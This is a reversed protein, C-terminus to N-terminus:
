SCTRRPPLDPVAQFQHFQFYAFQQLQVLKRPVINRHDSARRQSRQVPFLLPFLLNIRQHFRHVLVNRLRHPVHVLRERHRDLINERNRSAPRHHRPAHLAALHLHAFFHLDHAETRRHLTHHGPDLHEPLQQIFAHRSVVDPQQQAPRFLFFHLAPLHQGLRGRDRRVRLELRFRVHQRLFFAPPVRREERAVTRLKIEPRRVHRAVHLQRRAHLHHHRSVIHAASILKIVGTAKSFPSRKAIRSPPWM